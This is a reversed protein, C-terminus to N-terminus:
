VMEDHKSESPQRSHDTRGRKAASSPDPSPTYPTAPSNPGGFDPLSLTANHPSAEPSAIPGISIGLASAPIISVTAAAAAVSSSSSSAATAPEEAERTRKMKQCVALLCTAM